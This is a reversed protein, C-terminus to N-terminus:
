LYLWPSGVDCVQSKTAPPYQLTATRLAYSYIRCLPKKIHNNWLARWPVKSIEKLQLLIPSYNLTPPCVSSSFPFSISPYIQWHILAWFVKDSFLKLLKYHEERRFNLLRCAIKNRAVLICWFNSCCRRSPCFTPVVLSRLAVWTVLVSVSTNWHLVVKENIDRQSTQGIVWEHIFKKFGHGKYWDTKNGIGKCNQQHLGDESALELNM